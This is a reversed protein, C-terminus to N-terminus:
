KGFLRRICFVIVIAGLTLIFGFAVFNLAMPITIGTEVVLQKIRVTCAAILALVAILEVVTIARQM